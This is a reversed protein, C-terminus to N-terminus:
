TRPFSEKKWSDKLQQRTIRTYNQHLDKPTVLQDISTESGIKIYYAQTCQEQKHMPVEELHRM